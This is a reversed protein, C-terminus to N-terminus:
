RNPMATDHRGNKTSRWGGHTVRSNKEDGARVFFPQDGGNGIKQQLVVGVDQVGILV